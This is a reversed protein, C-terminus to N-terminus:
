GCGSAPRRRSSGMTPVEAESPSQLRPAMSSHRHARRALVTNQGVSVQFGQNPAARDVRIGRDGVALDLRGAHIEPEARFRVPQDAAKERFARLDARAQVHQVQVLGLQDHILDVQGLAGDQFFPVDVQHRQQFAHRQGRVDAPLGIGFAGRTAQINERPEDRVQVRPEIFDGRAVM